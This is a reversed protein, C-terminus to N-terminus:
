KGAGSNVAQSSPGPESSTSSTVVAKRASKNKKIGRSPGAKVTKTSGGLAQNVAANIMDLEASNEPATAFITGWYAPTNSQRDGDPSYARWQHQGPSTSTTPSPSATRRPLAPSAIRLPQPRRPTSGSSSPVPSQAQQYPIHQQPPPPSQAQARPSFQNQQQQPPSMQPVPSMPHQQPPMQQPPPPGHYAVPMPAEHPVIMYGPPPIAHPSVNHHPHGPEPFQPIIPMLSPSM